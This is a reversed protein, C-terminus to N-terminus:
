FVYIVPYFAADCNVCRFEIDCSNKDSGYERYFVVSARADVDSKCNSCYFADELVNGPKITLDRLWRMEEIKDEKASVNNVIKIYNEIKTEM